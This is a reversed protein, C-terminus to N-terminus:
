TFEKIEKIITKYNDDYVYVKRRNIDLHKM